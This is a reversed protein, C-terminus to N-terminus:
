PHAAEFADALGTASEPEEPSVPSPDPVLDDEPSEPEVPSASAPPDASDAALLPARPLATAVDPLVPSAMFVVPRDNVPPWPPTAPAELATGPAAPVAELATAAMCATPVVEPRASG